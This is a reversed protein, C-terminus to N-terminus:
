RSKIFACVMEALAQGVVRKGAEMGSPHRVPAPEALHLYQVGPLNALRHLYYLADNLSVGAFTMASTPMESIADLDIEVGIPLREDLLYHSVEDLVQEITKERRWWLQQITIYPFGAWELAQLAEQNNKQEHLGLVTYRKLYGEHHAYRFPNGSHRGELRRFDGHPDLNAVALPQGLSESCARILPYANNHGGGIVIPILGADFIPRLVTLLRKDLQQCSDRLQETDGGDPLDRCDLEGLLLIDEGDMFRNAQLNCFYSLFATWGENAGGKGLNALPGIQEPVGLLAFRCGALRAQEYDPFQTVLRIKDGLKTEGERASFCGQLAKADLPQLWQQTM